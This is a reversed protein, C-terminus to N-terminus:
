NNEEIKNNDFSLINKLIFIIEKKQLNFIM